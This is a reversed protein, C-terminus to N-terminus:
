LHTANLEFNFCHFIWRKCLNFSAISAKSTSLHVSTCVSCFVLLPAATMLCASVTHLANQAQHVEEPPMRGAQQM